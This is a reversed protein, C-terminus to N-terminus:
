KAEKMLLRAWKKETIEMSEIIFCQSEYDKVLNKMWEEFKAPTLPNYFDETDNQPFPIWMSFHNFHPDNKNVKETIM